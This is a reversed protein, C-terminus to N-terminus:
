NLWEACLIIQGRWMQIHWLTGVFFGIHKPAFPLNGLRVDDQMRARGTLLLKPLRPAPCLYNITEASIVTDIKKQRTSWRTVLLRMDRCNLFVRPSFDDIEGSLCIQKGQCRQNALRPKKDGDIGSGHMQCRGCARRLHDEEPRGIWKMPSGPFTWGGNYM